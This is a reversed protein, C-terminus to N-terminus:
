SHFVHTGFLMAFDSQQVGVYTADRTRIAKDCLRNKRTRVSDRKEGAHDLAMKRDVKEQEGESKRTTVDRIEEM